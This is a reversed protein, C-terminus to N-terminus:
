CGPTIADIRGFCYLDRGIETNFLAINVLVLVVLIVWVPVDTEM